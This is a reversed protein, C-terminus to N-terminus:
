TQFIRKWKGYIEKRRKEAVRGCQIRKDQVTSTNLTQMISWMEDISNFFILCEPYLNWACLQMENGLGHSQFAYHKLQYPSESGVIHPLFQPSPVIAIVGHQVSDFPAYNCVQVPLVVLAKFYTTGKESFGRFCKLGKEPCIKMFPIFEEENQYHNIYYTSALEEKDDFSEKHPGSYSKHEWHTGLEAVESPDSDGLPNIVERDMIDVGKTKCYHKEYECFPIIIVQSRWVSAAKRFLDYYISEGDMAYDFRNSIYIILKAQFEDINELFIRSTAATDSTIIYDFSNYYDKNKQWYKTAIANTITFPEILRKTIIRIGLTKFIHHIDRM